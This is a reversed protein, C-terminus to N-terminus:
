RLVKWLKGAPPSDFIGPGIGSRHPAEGRTEGGDVFRQEDRESDIHGGHWRAKEAFKQGTGAGAM